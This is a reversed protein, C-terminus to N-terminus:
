KVFRGCRENQCVQTVVHPQSVDPAINVTSAVNTERGTLRLEPVVPPGLIYKTNIFTDTHLISEIVSHTNLHTGGWEENKNKKESIYFTLFFYNM